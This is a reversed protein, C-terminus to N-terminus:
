SHRALVLSRRRVWQPLEVVTTGDPRDPSRRVWLLQLM